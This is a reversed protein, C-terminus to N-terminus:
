GKYTISQYDKELLVREMPQCGAQTIMMHHRSENKKTHPGVQNPGRWVGPLEVDIM